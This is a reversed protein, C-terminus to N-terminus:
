EFLGLQKSEEMLDRIKQEAEKINDRTSGRIDKQEAKAEEYDQWCTECRELKALREHESETTAEELAARLYESQEKVNDNVRKRETKAWATTTQWETFARLLSRAQEAQKADSSDTGKQVHDLVQKAFDDEGGNNSKTKAM